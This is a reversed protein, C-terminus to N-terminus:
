EFLRQVLKQKAIQLPVFNRMVEDNKENRNNLPMGLSLLLACSNWSSVSCGFQKKTFFIMVVTLGLYHIM